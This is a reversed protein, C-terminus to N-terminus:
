YYNITFTITADARGPTVQTETQIYRAVIPFQYTTATTSELTKTRLVSLAIVTPSADGVQGTALQIGIGSASSAGSKLGIISKASNIVDTNPFLGLSMTNAQPQFDRTLVGDERYYAGYAQSPAVGYFRPCNILNVSANVWPTASGIGTFTKNVDFTGMPVNVDPTTCTQSVINIVGSMCVRVIDVTQGALGFKQLVCPLDSGRIIGPSVPGTTVLFVTLQFLNSSCSSINNTCGSKVTSPVNDASNPGIRMVVGVGQVGTEYVKGANFGTNWSSLPKPTTTFSGEKVFDGTSDCKIIAQSTLTAFDQTFVNSGLTRESGVTINGGQLPMTVNTVQQRPSNPAFACAAFASKMLMLSILALSIMVINIPFKM